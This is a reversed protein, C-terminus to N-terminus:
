FNESRGLSTLLLCLSAVFLAVQGLQVLVSPLHTKLAAVEAKAASAEERWRAVEAESHKKKEHLQKVWEVQLEFLESDKGSM